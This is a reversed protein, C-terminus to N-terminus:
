GHSGLAELGKLAARVDEATSAHGLSLRLTGDPATGLPGHIAAACHLGARCLVDFEVELLAAVEHPSYQELTVSVVPARGAPEIVAPGVLRVHPLRAIGTLLESLLKVWAVPPGPPPGHQLAAALGAFAPVNLNGPELRQPLEDPMRRSESSSGTGGQMWPEIQRHLDPSVYLFGTGLPGGLAKHGPAAILPALAAAPGLPLLGLTQAADILLYPPGARLENAVEEVPQVAGTVNSATSLAVIKTTPEIASLIQQAAVTGQCDCPVLTYHIGRHMRLWELPRLVSNHEVETAVVHDGPRLMGHLALNLSHTGSTTLVVANPSVGGLYGAIQQRCRAILEDAQRAARHGGRGAAGGQRMAETVAEVVAASKPLGTAAHDLYHM